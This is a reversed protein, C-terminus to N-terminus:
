PYSRHEPLSSFWFYGDYKGDSLFVLLFIRHYDGSAGLSAQSEEFHYSWVTRPRNSLPLLDRGVSLPEGLVRRIDSADSKGLTLRTELLAPEVPSGSVVRIEGCGTILLAVLFSVLLAPHSFMPWNWFSQKIYPSANM